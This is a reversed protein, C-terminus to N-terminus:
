PLVLYVKEDDQCVIEARYQFMENTKDQSVTIMKVKSKTLYQNVFEMYTIEKQYSNSLGSVFFLFGMGMLAALFFFNNGGPTPMGFM